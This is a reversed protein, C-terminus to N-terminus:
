YVQYTKAYFVCYPGEPVLNGLNSMLLYMIDNLLVGFTARDNLMRFNGLVVVICKM